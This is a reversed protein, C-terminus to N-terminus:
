RRRRRRGTHNCWRRRRNAPRTASSAALSARTPARARRRRLPQPSQAARGSQPSASAKCYWGAILTAEWATWAKMDEGTTVAVTEVGSMGQTYVPRPTPIVEPAYLRPQRYSGFPSAPAGWLTARPPSPPAFPTPSVGPGGPVETDQTQAQASAAFLVAALVVASRPPTVARM